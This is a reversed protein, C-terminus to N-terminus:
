LYYFDIVEKPCEKFLNRMMLSWMNRLKGMGLRVVMM